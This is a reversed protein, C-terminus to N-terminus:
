DKSVLLCRILVQKRGGTDCSYLLHDGVRFFSKIAVCIRRTLVKRFTYLVTDLIDRSINPHCDTLQCGLGTDAVGFEGMLMKSQVFSIVIIILIIETILIVIVTMVIM